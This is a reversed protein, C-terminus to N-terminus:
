IQDLSGLFHFIGVVVWPWVSLKVKVRSKVKLFSISMTRDADIKQIPSFVLGSRFHSASLSPSLPTLVLIKTCWLPSLKVTCIGVLSFRVELLFDLNLVDKSITKIRGKIGMHQLSCVVVVPSVADRCWWMDSSAWESTSYRSNWYKEIEEATRGPIRGAILSWRIWNSM